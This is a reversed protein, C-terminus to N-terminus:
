DVRCDAEIQEMRKTIKDLASEESAKSLFPIDLGKAENSAILKTGFSSSSLILSVNVSGIKGSVTKKSVNLITGGSLSVAQIYAEIIKEDEGKLNCSLVTSTGAVASFCLFFCVSFFLGSFYIKM